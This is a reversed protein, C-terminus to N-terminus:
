RSDHPHDQEALAPVAVELIREFYNVAVKGFEPEIRFSKLAPVMHFCHLPNACRQMAYDEVAWWEGHSVGSAPQYVHRYEDLLGAEEAMQRVSVGAFTSDVSVEQFQESWEGGTDAKLQEALSRLIEPADDGTSTLLDEVHRRMLKRKGHGYSQYKSFIEEDQQLMWTLLVHTEILLRSAPSASEGTWLAPNQLLVELARFARTVLGSIVEHRPFQSFKPSAAFSMEVFAEYMSKARTLAEAIVEDGPLEEVTDREEPIVPDELVCPTFNRNQEWFSEKWAERPASWEPHEHADAAKMALFSSRITAEAMPRKEEDLPYDRLLDVIERPLSVKGRLLQWAYPPTKTVANLGADAIVSVIAHALFNVSEDPSPASNSAEWPEVVLWRGPLQEYLKLVGILQPPLLRAHEPFDTLAQVVQPRDEEPFRELSTLRGDLAAGSAVLSEAPIVELVAEQAKRFLAAAERGELAALVLSWLLDPLDDRAWESPVMQEHTLLPPTFTKGRKYHGALPGEKQLRGKPDKPLLGGAQVRRVM